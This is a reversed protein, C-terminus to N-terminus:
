QEQWYQLQMERELWIQPTLPKIMQPVIEMAMAPSRFMRPAYYLLGFSGPGYIGYAQYNNIAKEGLVAAGEFNGQAALLEAQLWTTELTESVHGSYALSANELLLKAKELDGEAIYASALQNYAWTSQTNQEFTTKAVELTIKPEQPNKDLWRNRINERFSSESWFHADSWAPELNLVNLFANQATELDQNHEAYTAHTLQYLAVKPALQVALEATAQAEVVDGVQELLAALNAYNLAWGPEIAITKRLQLIAEFLANSEGQSALVSDVLALQQHALASGSDRLIATEINVRAMEWQNQNALSVGQHFPYIIWIFYWAALLPLMVWLNQRRDLKNETQLGSKPTALVAAMLIVLTWMIAPEMHLSDFFTHLSFAGLFGAAPIMFNNNSRLTLKLKKIFARLITIVLFLFAILGTIGMEALLNLYSNHAHVWVLDPPVSTGKLFATGYTFQGQGVIPNEFFTKMAIQWFLKRSNLISGHTPHIAQKYLIFGAGLLIATLIIIGTFLLIPKAKLQSWAKLIRTKERVGILLLILGYGAAAGLWGGRSSTIFLMANSLLFILFFAIKHLKKRSVYLFYLAFLAAFYNFPALVNAAAPRFTIAPLWDRPNIHLWNRYWDAFDFIGAFSIILSATMLGYIFMKSPWGRYVLDYVLMFLFISSSMILMQAASRRPDISFVVSLFYAGTWIIFPLKFPTQVKQGFLIWILALVTWLTASFLIISFDIVAHTYGIVLILLCIISIVVTEQILFIGRTSLQLKIM